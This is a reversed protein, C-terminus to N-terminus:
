WNDFCTSLAAGHLIRRSSSSPGSADRKGTLTHLSQFSILEFLTVHLRHRSCCVRLKLAPNGGYAMFPSQTSFFYRLTSSRAGHHSCSKGGTQAVVREPFARQRGESRRRLHWGCLSLTGCSTRLLSTSRRWCSHVSCIWWTSRM